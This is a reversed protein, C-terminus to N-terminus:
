PNNIPGGYSIVIKMGDRLVIDRPDGNYVTEDVYIYLPKDPTVPEGMFSTSSIEVGWIDFFDGLRFSRVVPSEVYIVGPEDHTHIWYSCEDFIGINPPIDVKSGYRYLELHITMVVKIDKFVKICEIGNIPPRNM